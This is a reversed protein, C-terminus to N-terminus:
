FQLLDMDLVPREEDALDTLAKRHRTFAFAAGLEARVRWVVDGAPNVEELQGASSWTILTNGNDLRDVDGLAACFLAPQAHREWVRTALGQEPDLRYQVVRSDQTEVLGNDFVVIGDDLLEFQHQHHFLATSGDSLAFDSYEGGLAWVQDGTSQDIKVICDFNRLSVYYAEDEKDFYIANAHSWSALPGVVNDPDLEFHDWATWIQRETGDPSVEVVADGIYTQGDVERRDYKLLALTGDGLEFFDHHTDPLDLVHERTGDLSVRVIARTPDPEPLGQAQGGGVNYTVWEGLRFPRVRTVFHNSWGLDPQHSWVIDGDGDVIVAASQNSYLSTAVFRRRAGAPDAVKLVVEVDSRQLGGTQLEHMESRLRGEDGVETIRYLYTRQSKMGVLLARAHGDDDITARSSNGIDETTGFAVFADTCSPTVVDWEVVAVTPMADSVTVQPDVVFDPGECGALVLGLFVLAMSSRWCM